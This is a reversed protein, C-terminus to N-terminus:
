FSTTAVLSLTRGPEKLTTVSSYDGGYSARDAYQRDFVNNIEARFVVNKYSPPRYEAFLNLVEYGEFAVPAPESPDNDLAGHAYDLAADVSGGIVMNLEPLEQQVELAIVKGLPAGSDRLFYSSARQGDAFNESDSFSFRAFGSDWGYTAGINYGRSKFDFSTVTPGSLHRTDNIKTEFVEAGLKWNGQDWDAGLVINQARTVDLGTYDWARYFLFNDEIDYGGFINSYGARLSLADTVDYVVSLNGSLGASDATHAAGTQAYDQGVFSNWDYRLGTSVKLRETPELRAQAFVGTTKSQEYPTNTGWYTGSATSKKDQFDVGATITNVDSLHFRNQMRASYTRTVGVSTETAGISGIESESYGMVASPDWMGGGNVNEYRLSYIKRTTDYITSTPNWSAYGFNARRNRLAKDQLQQASFEVRHGTEGEYALKLLGAQLDSSTGAVVNGDGDRYSDGTASKGYALFEFGGQRAALTLSRGFTNGNDGYSLRAKGGFDDGDELIDEVDVTEMVVRGALAGPGADAPAVGPDVRVSKMLGPDFANASAHHFVRNNQSVGDVQVGLNLMDVGNVYIKQAVPIGGGVSVSAIGAFLDKLDGMAAREMEAEAVYVATARDAADGDPDAQQVTIPDLSFTLTGADQALASQAVAALFSTTGLLLAARPLSSHAM